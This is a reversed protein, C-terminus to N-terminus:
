YRLVAALRSRTPMCNKELNIVAARQLFASAVALDLLDDAGEDAHETLTNTSAAYTGRLLAGREVFLTDVRGEDLAKLVARVDDVAKGSGVLEHFRSVSAAKRQDALQTVLPRVKGYLEADDAHDFNGALELDAIQPYGCVQRFIPLEYAVGALILPLPEKRLQDAIAQAVIRFYSAVDSKLTDTEGGQGHFVAAQKRSATGADLRAGAHVQEGRDCGALNLAEEMDTPMQPVAINEFDYLSAKLLRVHNRSLALVFCDGQELLPLLQRLHFRHDVEVQEVLPLPLRYQYLETQTLFLALGQRRGKWFDPNETLMQAPQVFDRADSERMGRAVLSEEARAILNKLRPPDQQGAPSAPHTSMLISVHWGDGHRVLQSFENKTFTSM